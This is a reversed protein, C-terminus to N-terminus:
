WNAGGACVRVQKGSLTLNACSRSLIAKAAMQIESKDIERYSVGRRKALRYLANKASTEDGRQYCEGDCVDTGHGSIVIDYGDPCHYYAVGGSKLHCSGDQDASATVSFALFFPILSFVFVKKL